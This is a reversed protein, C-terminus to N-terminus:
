VREAAPEEADEPEEIRHVRPHTTLHMDMEEPESPAALRMSYWLAFLLVAIAILGLLLVLATAQTRV